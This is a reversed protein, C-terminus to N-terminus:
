YTSRVSFYIYVLMNSQLLHLFGDDKSIEGRKYKEANAKSHM